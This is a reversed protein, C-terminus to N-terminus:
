ERTMTADDLIASACLDDDCSPFAISVLKCKVSCSGSLSFFRFILWVCKGMFGYRSEGMTRSHALPSDTVWVLHFWLIRSDSPRWLWEVHWIPVSMHKVRGRAFITQSLMVNAIFWNKSILWSWSTPPFRSSSLGISCSERERTQACPVATHECEFDSIRGAFEIEIRRQWKEPLYDRSSCWACCGM